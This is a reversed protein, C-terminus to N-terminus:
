AGRELLTEYFTVLDPERDTFVECAALLTADDESAGLRRYEARYRAVRADVPDADTLLPM